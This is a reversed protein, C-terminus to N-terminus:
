LRKRRQLIVEGLRERPNRISANFSNALVTSGALGLERQFVVTFYHRLLIVDSIWVKKLQQLKFGKPPIEVVLDGTGDFIIIERRPLYGQEKDRGPTHHVDPLYIFGVAAIGELSNRLNLMAQPRHNFKAIAEAQERIMWDASERVDKISHAIYLNGVAPDLREEGNKPIYRELDAM